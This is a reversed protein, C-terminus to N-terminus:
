ATTDDDDRTAGWLNIASCILMGIMGSGDNVTRYHIFAIAAAIFGIWCLWRPMM